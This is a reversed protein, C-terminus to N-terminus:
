SVGSCETGDFSEYSNTTVSTVKWEVGHREPEVAIRHILFPESDELRNGSKDVYDAGSGDECSVVHVKDKTGNGEIWIKARVIEGELREGAAAVQRLLEAAAELYSGAAYKKFESTPKSNGERLMRDLEDAASVYVEIAHEGREREAREEDTEPPSAPASSVPPSSTASAEPDPDGPTCGVAGLVFVGVSVVVAFRCLRGM